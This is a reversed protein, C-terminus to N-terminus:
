VILNIIHGLCRIRQIQPDWERETHLSFWESITRCLTDNTTVNDGIIVGLDHWLGWEMLVTHLTHFQEEGSHGAIQRLGILNKSLQGIEGRVFHAVVGLFLLRNPSTWV